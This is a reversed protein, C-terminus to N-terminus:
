GAKAYSIAIEAIRSISANNNITGDEKLIGCHGHTTYPCLCVDCAIVLNPFWKRLLPVAHIIPNNQSDAAKGMPDQYFQFHNLFLYGNILLYKILM